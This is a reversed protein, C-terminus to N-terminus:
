HRPVRVELGINSATALSRSTLIYCAPFHKAPEVTIQSIHFDAIANFAQLESPHTYTILLNM